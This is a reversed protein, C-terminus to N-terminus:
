LYSLKKFLKIITKNKFVSEKNSLTIYTDKNSQLFNDYDLMKKNKNTKNYNIFIYTNKPVKYTINNMAWFLINKYIIKILDQGSLGDKKSMYKFLYKKEYLNKIDFSTKISKYEKLLYEQDFSMPDIMVLPVKYTYAYKWAYFCGLGLGIVIHNDKNKGEEIAKRHATNILGDMSLFNDELEKTIIYPTKTITKKIEYFKPNFQFVKGIKELKDKFYYPSSNLKEMSELGSQFVIFLTM